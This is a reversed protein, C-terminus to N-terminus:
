LDAGPQDDDSATSTATTGGGPSGESAVETNAFIWLAYEEMEKGAQEMYDWLADVPRNLTQSDHVAQQFQRDNPDQLSEMNAAIEAFRGAKEDEGDVQLNKQIMRVMQYAKMYMYATALPSTGGALDDYRQMVNEQFIRNKAIYDNILSKRQQDDGRSYDDPLQVAHSQGVTALPDPVDDDAQEDHDTDTDPSM